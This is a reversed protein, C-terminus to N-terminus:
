SGLVSSAYLDSQVVHRVMQFQREFYREGLLESTAIIANTLPKPIPNTTPTRIPIVATARHTFRGLQNRQQASLIM